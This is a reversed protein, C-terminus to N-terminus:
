HNTAYVLFRWVLVSISGFEGVILLLMGFTM